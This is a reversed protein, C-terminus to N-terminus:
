VYPFRLCNYHQKRMKEAKRFTIHAENQACVCAVTNQPQEMNTCLLLYLLYYSAVYVIITDLPIKGAVNRSYISIMYPVSM